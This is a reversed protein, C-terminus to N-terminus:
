TQKKHTENRHHQGMPSPLIALKNLIETPDKRIIQKKESGVEIAPDFEFKFLFVVVNAISNKQKM